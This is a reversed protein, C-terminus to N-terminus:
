LNQRLLIHLCLASSVHGRRKSNTTEETRHLSLEPIFYDKHVIVPLVYGHFMFSICSLSTTTICCDLVNGGIFFVSFSCSGENDSQDTANFTVTTQVSVSFNFPFEHSRSSLTATNSEDMITPDDFSLPVTATGLEVLQPIYDPCTLVPAINDVTFSRFSYPTSNYSFKVVIGDM